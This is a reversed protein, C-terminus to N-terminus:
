VRNETQECEDDWEIVLGELLAHCVSEGDRFSLTRVKVEEEHPNSSIAKFKDLNEYYQDMVSRFERDLVELIVSNMSSVIDERM